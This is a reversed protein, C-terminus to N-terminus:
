GTTISLANTVKLSMRKFVTSSKHRPTHFYADLKKIEKQLLTISAENRKTRKENVSILAEEVCSRYSDLHFAFLDVLKALTQCYEDFAAEQDDNVKNKVDQQLKQALSLLEVFGDSGGGAAVLMSRPEDRKKKEEASAGKGNIQSFRVGLEGSEADKAKDDAASSKSKPKKGKEKKEKKEKKKKKKKLKSEKDNNNSSSDAEKQDEKKEKKSSSTKAKKEKKAKGFSSTKARVRSKSDDEVPQSSTSTSSSAVQGDVETESSEVLVRWTDERQLRSDASAKRVLAAHKNLEDKSAGSITSYAKRPAKKQKPKSKKRERMSSTSGVSVIDNNSTKIDANAASAAIEKEM